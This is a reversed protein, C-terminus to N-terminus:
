QNVVLTKVTVEPNNTTWEFAKVAEEFSFTHTIMGDAKIRGDALWTVAADYANAYRFSGAYRLEKEIFSAIDLPVSIDEPWGVQVVTGGRKAIEFLSETAKTSGACEFVVDGADALAKDGPKCILDAGLTQAIRLNNDMFDVCIAKGGGAAKFAQLTMLGIPGAGVIIGTAGLPVQALTVAHIAVAAPEALAAHELSLADPIPFVLHEPLTVYDCFTGNIPPASLFHMDACMNYRGEKCLKCSGCSVGPELVVRDGERIHKCNKGVEAIIGSSEHGPVYPTTVLHNGLRGDKYFHIDSGCIGNAVVKILVEGAKPEPMPMEKIQLNHDADLFLGRNLM